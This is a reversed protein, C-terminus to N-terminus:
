FSNTMLSYTVGYDSRYKWQNRSVPDVAKPRNVPEGYLGLGSKKALGGGATKRWREWTWQSATSESIMLYLVPKVTFEIFPRAGAELQKLMLPYTLCYDVRTTGADTVMYEVTDTALPVNTYTSNTLYYLNATDYNAPYHRLVDDPNEILGLSNTKGTIPYEGYAARYDELGSKIKEIYIRQNAQRARLTVYKSIPITFGVMLEILTFSPVSACLCM